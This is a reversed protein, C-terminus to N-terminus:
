AAPQPLIPPTQRKGRANSGQGLENTPQMVHQSRKRKSRREAAEERAQAALYALLDPWVFRWGRGIKLAPIEGCRALEEIQPATCGLLRACEESGIIVPSANSM